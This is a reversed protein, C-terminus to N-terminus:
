DPLIKPSNCRYGVRLMPYRGHVLYFKVMGLLKRITAKKASKTLKIYLSVGERLNRNLISDRRGCCEFCHKFQLEFENFNSIVMM